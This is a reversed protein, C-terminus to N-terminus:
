TLSILNTRMLLNRNFKLALTRELTLDWTTQSNRFTRRKMPTPPSQQRTEKRTQIRTKTLDSSSKSPLRPIM